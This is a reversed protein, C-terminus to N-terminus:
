QAIPRVRNKVSQLTGPTPSSVEIRTRRQAGGPLPLKNIHSM